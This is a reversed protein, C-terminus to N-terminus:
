GKATSKRFIQNFKGRIRSFAARLVEPDLIQFGVLISAVCTLGSLALKPWLALIATDIWWGLGLMLVTAPLALGILKLLRMGCGLAMAAGILLIGGRLSEGVGIIFPGYGKAAPLEYLVFNSLINVAYGMLLIMTARANQGASNVMRLLVWGLTVAWLGLSIGLLAQGTLEIATENFAGRSFLMTVVEPGFLGLWVSAPLGAALLPRSLREMREAPDADPPTALLVLGLPQSIFLVASDTITRAYDLSAVAGVALRSATLREIWINAQEAIPMALLPRVRVWFEKQAAMLDAWTLGKFSLDGERTLKYVGWIALGDFALMFAVPLAMLWGTFFVVLLGGIIAINLLSARITTLRSRGLAIEGASLANLMVSGPMALAMITIFSRTLEQGEQTFGGVFATIWYSGLMLVCGMILTGILTLTIALAAFRRPADGRAQWDRHMPIFVTPVTENQLLALPMLVGTIAARFADATISTGFMHAMSIERVLGLMKSVVAGLMLLIALRRGSFVPDPAKAPAAAKAENSALALLTVDAENDLEDTGTMRGTPRNPLLAHWWRRLGTPKGDTSGPPPEPPKDM